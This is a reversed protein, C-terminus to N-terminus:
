PTLTPARLLTPPLVLSALAALFTSASPCNESSMFSNMTGASPFYADEINLPRKLSSPFAKVLSSKCVFPLLTNELLTSPPIISDAKCNEPFFAELNPPSSAARKSKSSAPLILSGNNFVKKPPIVLPTTRASALLVSKGLFMLVNIPFDNPVFSVASLIALYPGM